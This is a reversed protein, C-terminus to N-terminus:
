SIPSSRGTQGNREMDKGGVWALVDGFRKQFITAAEENAERYEYSGNEVKSLSNLACIRNHGM